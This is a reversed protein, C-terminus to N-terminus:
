MAHKEVKRRTPNRGNQLLTALPGPWVWSVWILTLLHVTALAVFYYEIWPTGTSLSLFLCLFNMRWLQQAANSHSIVRHGFTFEMGLAPSGSMPLSAGVYRFMSTMITQITFAVFAVQMWGKWENAQARSLFVETGEELVEVNLLSVLFVLVMIFSWLDPNEPVITTGAPLFGSPMRHEGVVCVM